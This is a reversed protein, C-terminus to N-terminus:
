SRISSLGREFSVLLRILANYRSHATLSNEAAILDYLRHEPSDHETSDHETSDMTRCNSTSVAVGLARLRPEGIEILLSGISEKGSKLDNLGSNILEGGPLSDFDIFHAESKSM